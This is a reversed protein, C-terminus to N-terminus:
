ENDNIKLQIIVETGLSSGTEDVLDNVFVTNKKQTFKIRDETIKMGFSQKKYGLKQKRKKAEVRGIGNDRISIELIENKQQISIMLKKEGSLNMLGHWIANEVYPQIIMPAMNIQDQNIDEGVQIQYSFNDQLRMGELQIYMDLANLEERLTISTMQSNALILRILHSFKNLYNAAVRPENRVIYGKISNLSNFIFHPNMMARLSQLELKKMENELVEKVLKTEKEKNRKYSIWNWFGAIFLLLMAGFGIAYMRREQAIKLNEFKKENEIQNLKQNHEADAKEKQLDFIKDIGSLNYIEDSILRYGKEHVYANSYDELGEYAKRCINHALHIRPKDQIEQAIKLAQLGVDLCKEYKGEAWYVEALLGLNSGLQEKDKLARNIEIAKTMLELKEEFTGYNHLYNAKNSMAVSVLRRQNEKQAYFIASDSMVFCQQINNLCYEFKARANYYSAVHDKSILGADILVKMGKLQNKAEDCQKIRWYDWSLYLHGIGELTYDEIEKAILLAENTHKLSEFINGLRYNARGIYLHAYGKRQTSDLKTWIGFSLEMFAIARNYEANKLDLQGLSDALTAVDIQLNVNYDYQMKNYKACFEPFDFHAEDDMCLSDLTVTNQGFGIASFFVLVLLISQAKNMTMKAM